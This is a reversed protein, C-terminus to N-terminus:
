PNILTIFNNTNDVSYTFFQYNQGINFTCKSTNSMSSQYSNNYAFEM